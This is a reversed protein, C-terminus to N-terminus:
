AFCNMCFDLALKFVTGIPDIARVAIATLFVLVEM